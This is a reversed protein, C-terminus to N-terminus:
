GAKPLTFFFTAGQDRASEAWVRGGHRSIIRKVTTLGIGTGPFEQASHLREFTGFLRSANKMDFGAGNDRIFYIESDGRIERGFEIRGKERGGTFKWANAFLNELVIRLLTADAEANIGPTILVEVVRSPSDEELCEIVERALASLDVPGRELPARAGRSLKLLDTILSAMRNSSKLIQQVFSKADDPLRGGFRLELMESFGIITTIPNRLDHAVSRSFAELESNTEELRLNAAELEATRERVRRELDENARTIEEKARSLEQNREELKRILAQSYEQMLEPEAPSDKFETTHSRKRALVDKVADLITQAPAPKRIYQDGGFDIACKEDGESTYTSTYFIFPLDHHKKSKRVERCFRYGDMRPMLIDSIIVNVEELALVQLGEIGDCAELIRYGDGELIVRLLKRNLPLDDIILIKIIMM